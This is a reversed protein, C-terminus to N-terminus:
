QAAFGGHVGTISQDYSENAEEQELANRKPDDVSYPPFSNTARFIKVTQRITM